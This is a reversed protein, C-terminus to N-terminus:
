VCALSLFCETATFSFAIHDMHNSLGVTGVPDEDEDNYRVVLSM